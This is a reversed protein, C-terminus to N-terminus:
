GTSGTSSPSPPPRSPPSWCASSWGPGAWFGHPRWGGGGRRAIWVAAGLVALVLLPLFLAGHEIVATFVIQFARELTAM